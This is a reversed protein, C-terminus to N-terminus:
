LNVFSFGLNINEKKNTTIVNQIREVVEKLPQISENGFAQDFSFDPLVFDAVPDIVFVAVKM